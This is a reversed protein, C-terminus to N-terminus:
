VCSSARGARQRRHLRRWTRRGTLGCRALRTRPRGAHCGHGGAGTSVVRVGGPTIRAVALL